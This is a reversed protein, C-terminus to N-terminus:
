ISELEEKIEKILDEKFSDIAGRIDDDTIVCNKDEKIDLLEAVILYLTKSEM